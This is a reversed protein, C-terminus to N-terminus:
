LHSISQTRGSNTASKYTEVSKISNLSEGKEGLKIFDFGKKGKEVSCSKDETIISLASFVISLKSLLGLTRDKPGLACQM